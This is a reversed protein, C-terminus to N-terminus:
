ATGRKPLELGEELMVRLLRLADEYGSVYGQMAAEEKSLSKLAQTDLQEFRLQCLEETRNLLTTIAENPDTM